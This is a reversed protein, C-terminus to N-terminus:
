KKGNLIFRVGYKKLLMIAEKKKMILASYEMPLGTNIQIWHIM